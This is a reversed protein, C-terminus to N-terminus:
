PTFTVTKTELYNKISDPGLERGIGSQKFGGFPSDTWTQFYSNVNVAGQDMERIVKDIKAMDSSFVGGGLGYESDNAIELAEEIGNFKVVSLVPGFIEERV